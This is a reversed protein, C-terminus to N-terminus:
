TKVIVVQGSKPLESVYEGKTPLWINGKFNKPVNEAHEYYKLGKRGVKLFLRNSLGLLRPTDLEIAQSLTQKGWHGLFKGDGLNWIGQAGYCFGDAGAMRSAWYAYLQDEVYFDNRIGEYWPELNIFPTSPYKIKAERPLDQIDDKSSQSHGTQITVASLFKPNDVVEHSFCGAVTHIIIPKATTKHVYRLVESWKSKRKVVNENGYVIKNARKKLSLVIDLVKGPVFKLITAQTFDDSSKDPILKDERGIWIDSEGTVCYIVNLDDIFHIIGGWWEKMKEIGMWEIQQGWAGYAIVMLGLDNLLSIKDRALKLYNENIEGQLNWAPGVESAASPHEPGVEPPIGVVLQVANFGQSVRLKALSLMQEKTWRSTLGYWWTDCLLNSYNAQESKM